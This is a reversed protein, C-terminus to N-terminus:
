SDRGIFARVRNLGNASALVTVFGSQEASIRAPQGWAVVRPVTQKAGPYLINVVVDGGTQEPPATPTIVILDGVHVDPHDLAFAGGWPAYDVAGLKWQFIGGPRQDFEPVDLDGTPQPQPNPTEYVLALDEYPLDGPCTTAVWDRHGTVRFSPQLYGLAIAADVLERLTVQEVHSPPRVRGDLLWAVGISTSNAGPAHAGTYGFGRGEFVYNSWVVFTYGIDQWGQGVHGAYIQQMEEVAALYTGPMQGPTHHEVLWPQRQVGLYHGGPHKPDPHGWDARAVFIM